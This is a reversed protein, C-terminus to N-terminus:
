VDCSTTRKEITRANVLNGPGRVYYDDYPAYIAAQTKKKARWGRSGTVGPVTLVLPRQNVM